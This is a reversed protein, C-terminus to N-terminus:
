ALFEPRRLTSRWRTAEATPLEIERDEVLQVTLAEIQEWASTLLAETADRAQEILRDVAEELDRSSRESGAIGARVSPTLDGTGLRTVLRRALRVAEMEDEGASELKRHGALELGVAGALRVVMRARLTREDPGQIAVPSWTEELRLRGTDVDLIAIGPAGLVDSLHLRAALGPAANAAAVVLDWPQLRPRDPLGARARIMNELRATTLGSRPHRGRWRGVAKVLTELSAGTWALGTAPDAVGGTRSAVFAAHDASIRVDLRRALASVIAERAQRNPPPVTLKLDCRRRLAADLAAGLNTTMVILGRQRRLVEDIATLIAGVISKSVENVMDTRDSAWSDVEDLVLVGDARITAEFTELVLRESEGHWKRKLEPGKLTRVSSGRMTALGRGLHSKGTGPPGELLIVRARLADPASVADKLEEVLADLGALESLDAPEQRIRIMPTVVATADAETLRVEHLPVESTVARYLRELLLQQVIDRLERGAFRVGEPDIFSETDTVIRDRVAETLDVPVRAAHADVIARRETAGPYPVDIVLLRRQLAPEIGDVHNTTAIFFVNQRDGFSEIQTLLANLISREYGSSDKKSGFTDLEDVLVTAGNAREAVSRAREFLGRVNTETQAIYIGRLDPGRATITPFGLTNAIVQSWLTKGTGPPGALLIGRPMADRIANGNVDGPHRTLYRQPVFLLRELRSRVAAYGRIDDLTWDCIPREDARALNAALTSIEVDAASVAARFRLVDATGAIRHLRDFDPEDAGFLRKVEAVTVLRPLASRPIGRMPVVRTFLARLVDHMPLQHAAFALVGVGHRQAQQVRLHLNRSTGDCRGLGDGGCGLIGMFPVVVVSRKSQSEARAFAALVNQYASGYPDTGSPPSPLEWARGTRRRGIAVAREALHAGLGPDCSILISQGDLVRDVIRSLEADYCASVADAAAIRSPGLRRPATM